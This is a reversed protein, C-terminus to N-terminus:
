NVTPSETVAWAHLVTETACVVSTRSLIASVVNRARKASARVLLDMAVAFVATMLSLKKRLRPRRLNASLAAIQNTLPTTTNEMVVEAVRVMEVAFEALTWEAPVMTFALVISAPKM